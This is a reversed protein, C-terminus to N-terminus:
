QTQKGWAKCNLCGGKVDPGKFGGYRNVYERPVKPVAARALAILTKNTAIGNAFSQMEGMSGVTAVSSLAGSPAAGSQPGMGQTSSRRGAQSLVRGALLHRARRLSAALVEQMPLQLLRRRNGAGDTPAALNPAGVPPRLRQAASGMGNATAAAAPRLAGGVPQAAGAAATGAALAGAAPGTSSSGSGSETTVGGPTMGPRRIGAVPGLVGKKPSSSRGVAASQPEGPQKDSNDDGPADVSDPGELGVDEAQDSGGESSPLDSPDQRPAPLAGADPPLDPM